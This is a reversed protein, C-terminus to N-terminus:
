QQGLRRGFDLGIACLFLYVGLFVEGDHFCLASAALATILTSWFLVANTLAEDPKLKM